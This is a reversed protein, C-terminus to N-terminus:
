GCASAGIAGVHHVNPRLHPMKEFRPVYLEAALIGEHDFIALSFWRETFEPM